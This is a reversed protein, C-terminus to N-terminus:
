SEIWEVELPNWQLLQISGFPAFLNPLWLSIFAHKYSDSYGFKWEELRQKITALDYFEELVDSFISEVDVLVKDPSHSPTVNTITVTITVSTITITTITVTTITVTTITVTTIYTHM